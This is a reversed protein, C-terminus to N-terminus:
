KGVRAPVNTGLTDWRRQNLYTAPAPIYGSNWSESKASKHVHAIIADAEGDLAQKIWSNM